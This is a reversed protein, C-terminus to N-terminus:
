ADELIKVFEDYSIRNDKNLDLAEFYGKGARMGTEGMLVDVVSIFEGRSLYGDKNLDFFDFLEKGKKVLDSMNGEKEIYVPSYKKYGM